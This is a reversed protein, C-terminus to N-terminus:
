IIRNIFRISSTIVFQITSGLVYYSTPMRTAYEEHGPILSIVLISIVINLVATIINATLLRNLDHLGAYQWMGGYLRFAAFIIVSLITYFPAFHWFDTLYYTVTPRFEFNVYFRVMLALYYAANVAIIDLLVIWLDKAVLNWIKKM